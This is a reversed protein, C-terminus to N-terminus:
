SGSRFATAADMRALQRAPLWGALLTMAAAAIAARSLSGATVLVPFQPRWAAILAQAALMLAVAAVAGLVALTATEAVAIRRLRRVDAGLAKLVGLDRRQEAVLTHAVLAVILTGAVFAVGVMLRVPSGFVRTALRLSADRVQDATLVTFGAETLRSAVAAPEDTSVLVSGVTGDARLLDTLTAETLFVLPTMFMATERTLGVVRLSRGLVPLTSGLDLGHQDAFLADVAVEAGTRPQRGARFAWPGGPRDPGAGVLAAAAKGGHLELITYTTRVGSAWRVGSTAAVQDVAAAPLAGGDAFFNDTGPAVVVLDAGTNDGYLTVRDQVGAWLGDLLLVLMLALGIAIAGAGVRLPRAALLRRTVPVERRRLAM